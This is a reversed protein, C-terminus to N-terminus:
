PLPKLLPNFNIEACVDSDCAENLLFPLLRLDSNTTPQTSFLFFIHKAGNTWLDLSRSLVSSLGIPRTLKVKQIFALSSYGCSCRLM